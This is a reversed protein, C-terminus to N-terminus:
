RRASRRSRRAGQGADRGEAGQRVGVQQPQRRRRRRQLLARITAIASDVNPINEGGVTTGSSGDPQMTFSTKPALAPESVGPLNPSPLYYTPNPLKLTKDAYGGMLDSFQDGVNLVIDYKKDGPATSTPRSTSAPAPRTSWPRAARSARRLHRLRAQATGPWKTFFREPAFATYGVKTLNALTAARQGDSRGTIGFVAFGKAAAANVFAVMGPTAPFRQEQVWTNQLAPDYDFGMAGDEMDYNWLVTDDTDLM